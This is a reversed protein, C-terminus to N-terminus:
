ERHVSFVNMYENEYLLIYAPVTYTYAIDNEAFRLNAMTATQHNQWCIM